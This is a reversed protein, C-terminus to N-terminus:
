TKCSGGGRSRSDNEIFKNTKPSIVMFSRQNWKRHDHKQSNTSLPPPGNVVLPKIICCWFVRTTSCTYTILGDNLFPGNTSLMTGVTLLCFQDRVRFVGAAAANGYSGPTSKVASGQFSNFLSSNFCLNM